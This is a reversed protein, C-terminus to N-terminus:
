KVYQQVCGDGNKLYIGDVDQRTKTEVVVCVPDLRSELAKLVDVDNYAYSNQVRLIALSPISLFLELDELRLSADLLTIRALKANQVGKAFKALYKTRYSLCHLLCLEKLTNKYPSECIALLVEAVHLNREKWAKRYEKYSFIEFTAACQFFGNIAEPTVRECGLLEFHCMHRLNGLSQLVSDDLHFDVLRVTQLLFCEDIISAIHECSLRSGVDENGHDDVADDELDSDFERSDDTFM